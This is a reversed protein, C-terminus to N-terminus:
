TRRRYRGDRGAQLRNEEHAVIGIHWKETSHIAELSERERVRECVCVLHLYELREEVQAGAGM